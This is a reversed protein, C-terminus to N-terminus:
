RRNDNGRKPCGVNNETSNQETLDDLLAKADKLDATDFGDTCPALQAFSFRRPLVDIRFPDPCTHAAQAFFGLM